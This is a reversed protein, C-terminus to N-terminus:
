LFRGNWSDPLFLGFSYSSNSDSLVEVELACLCHLGAPSTPFAIDGAPVQFTSNEPLSYAFTVSANSGLLGSFASPRCDLANAVSLVTASHFINNLRM